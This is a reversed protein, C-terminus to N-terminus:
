KHLLDAITKNKLYKNYINSPTICVFNDASIPHCLLQHKNMSPGVNKHEVFYNTAIIKGSSYTAINPGYIFATFERGTAESLEILDLQSTDEDYVLINWHAPLMFNFGNISIQITPCSTEELMILPSLTFDFMNLDLTWIHSTNIPNYINDLIIPQHNDDFILM